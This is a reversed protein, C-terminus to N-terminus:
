RAPLKKLLKMDEVFVMESYMRPNPNDPENHQVGERNLQKQFEDHPCWKLGGWSKWKDKCKEIKTVCELKDPYTYFYERAQMDWTKYSNGFLMPFGNNFSIRVIM